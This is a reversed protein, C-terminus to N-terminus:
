TRGSRGSQQQEILDAVRRSMEHLQECDRFSLAKAQRARGLEHLLDSLPEGAVAFAKRHRKKIDRLIAGDGWEEAPVLLSRSLYVRFGGDLLQLYDEPRHQEDSVSRGRYKRLLQRLDKHFQAYPTLATGKAQLREILRKRALHRQTRWAVILIIFLIFGAIGGWLWWPWSLMLPGYPPFPKPPAGNESKVVSPLNWQLGEVRVRSEGEGLYLFEPSHAGPKYGTAVFQAENSSAKRMELLVLSFEDEPKAFQLKPIEGWEKISPGSCSLLFKAGVSLSNLEPGEGDKALACQWLIDAPATSPDAHAPGRGKTM